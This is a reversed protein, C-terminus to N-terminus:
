STHKESTGFYIMAEAVNSMGVRFANTLNFKADTGIVDPTAQSGTLVIPKNLNEGLAFSLATGTNTMTDTGHTIIFGDYDNYNKGITRAIEQWHFPTMNSSPINFLYIVDLDVIAKIEPVLSLLEEASKAPELYGTEPNKAMSITGGCFILCIKKKGM